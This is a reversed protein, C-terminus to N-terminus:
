MAKAVLLDPAEIDQPVRVDDTVAGSQKPEIVEDIM